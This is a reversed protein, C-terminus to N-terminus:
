PGLPSPPLQPKVAGPGRVYLPSAPASAPDCQVGLLGTASANPLDSRESGGYEPWDRAPEGVALFGAPALEHLRDRASVVPLAHAPVIPGGREDFLAVFLESRRADLIAAVAQGAQSGRAM